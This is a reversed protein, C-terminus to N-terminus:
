STTLGNESAWDRLAANRLSEAAVFEGLVGHADVLLAAADSGSWDEYVFRVLDATLVLPPAVTELNRRTRAM